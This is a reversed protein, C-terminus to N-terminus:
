SNIHLQYINHISYQAFKEKELYSYNNLIIVYMGWVGWMPFLLIPVWRVKNKTIDKKAGLLVHSSFAKMHWLLTHMGLCNTQSWSSSQPSPESSDSCHPLCIWVKWPLCEKALYHDKLIVWSIFLHCFCCM